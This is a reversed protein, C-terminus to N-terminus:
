PTVVLSACHDLEKELDRLSVPKTLHALFGAKRGRAVDQEAGYGTLAIGSWGFDVRLRTMLDYGNGDPLGVDSIVFDCVESKSKELAEAVSAAQTVNVGRRTLLQALAIRSPGHDEVLLIRRFKGAFGHVAEVTGKPPEPVPIMEQAALPLEVLFSAGKHRGESRASIFGAHMEAIKRSISLGLGLGGFRHKVQGDRHDGQVFAEFIQDLENATLGYGSDSVEIAVFGERNPSRKISVQIRGGAPTFKVANRLLNWFIQQFRTEDANVWLPSTTFDKELIIGKEQAEVLIVALSREILSRVEQRTLRLELKDHAIRTVDLLDDILRVEVRICSEISRFEDRIAPALDEDQAAVSARLLVPNLPTRLEHSLRALFNDKAQSAAVAQDRAIKLAEETRSREVVPWIRAAVEKLVRLEDAEWKRANVETMALVVTWPDAGKSPQAAYSRIGLALYNSAETSGILPDTEV